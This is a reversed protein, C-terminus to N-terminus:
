HRKVKRWGRGRGGGWIDKLEKEVHIVSNTVIKETIEFNHLKYFWNALIGQTLRYPQFNEVCVLQALEIQWSRKIWATFFETIKATENERKEEM